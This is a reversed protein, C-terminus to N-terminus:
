ISLIIVFDVGSNINRVDIKGNMNKEIITKAMYLGIGTGRDEFKTTFYPEFMRELVEPEVEGCNNSLSIKANGDNQTIKINIKPSFNENRSKIIAAEAANNLINVIVQQLESQYGHISFNGGEITLKANAIEVQASVINVCTEISEKLNFFEKEKTPKYFNRFDDITKSMYDIQVKASHISEHLEEKTFNEFNDRIFHILLNINNLPQRWQHAINGLVEGMSALKNQHALLRDKEVNKEVEIEVQEKLQEQTMKMRTIDNIYGYLKTVKGFHDKLLITRNFVWRYEGNKSKIRYVKTFFNNENEIAFKIREKLPEVDDEHIMKLYNTNENFEMPDYGYSSISKSVYDIGLKEDINWKFIVIRGMEVLLDLNHLEKALKVREDIDMSMMLMRNSNQKENSFAKGRVLVWKYHNDITRLRYECIFHESRGLIHENFKTRVKLKDEEHILDIWDEFTEVDGRKYGFMELWKSSFFIDYTDLNIDWLGDNSAIIALEYREKWKKYLSNKTELRRNYRNFLTNVYKGFFMFVMIAFFAVLIVIFISVMLKSNYENKIDAIKKYVEFSNISVLFQYKTFNYINDEKKFNGELFKTFNIRDQSQLSTAKIRKAKNFYNYVYGNKYDYFWFFAHEYAKSKQVISNEITKRTLVKMDDIKSFAGIFWGKSNVEEFYSLRIDRKKNDLWYILSDNGLLIINRLMHLRFADTKMKSNTLTQLYTITEKGYLMNLKKTDFVVISIGRKRELEYILKEIDRFNVEYNYTTLADIHGAVEIVTRTLLKEIEDFSANSNYKIDNVYSRLINKKNFKDKQILLEIENNQKYELVLSVVISSLISLIFIFIIPSFIIHKKIDSLSNFRKRSFFIM